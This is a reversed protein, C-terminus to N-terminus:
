SGHQIRTRPIFRLWFASYSRSLTPLRVGHRLMIRSNSFEMTISCGTFMLSESANCWVTFTRFTLIAWRSKPFINPVCAAGPSIGLREEMKQLGSEERQFASGFMVHTERTSASPIFELFNPAMSVGHKECRTMGYHAYWSGPIAVT